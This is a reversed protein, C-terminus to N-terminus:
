RIKHVESSHNTVLHKRLMMIPQLKKLKRNYDKKGPRIHQHSEAYVIKWAAPLIYENLLLLILYFRSKLYYYM